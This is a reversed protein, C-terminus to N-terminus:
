IVMDTEFQKKYIAKQADDANRWLAGLEIVIDTAKRNGLDKLTPRLASSFRIFPALPRKPKEPFGLKKEIDAVQTTSLRSAFSRGNFLLFLYIRTVKLTM